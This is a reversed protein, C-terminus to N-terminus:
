RTARAPEGTEIALLGEDDIVIPPTDHSRRYSDVIRGYHVIRGFTYTTIRVV